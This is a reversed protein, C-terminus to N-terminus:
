SDSTLKTRPPVVIVIAAALALAAGATFAAQKSVHAYLEGFILSGALVGMGSVLYYIGFSRGRVGAPVLDSILAREAGESFVFPLAYFVFLAFFATVSKAMPFFFYTVAYLLWGFGVVYRRQMRDSLAGGHTSLLSK